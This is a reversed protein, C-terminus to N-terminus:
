ASSPMRSKQRDRPSPSTYLLCTTIYLFAVFRRLSTSFRRVDGPQAFQMSFDENRVLLFYQLLQGYPSRHRLGGTGQVRGFQSICTCGVTNVGGIRMERLVFAGLTQTKPGTLDTMPRFGVYFDRRAHGIAVLNGFQFQLRFAQGKKETTRQGISRVFHPLQTIQHDQRASCM